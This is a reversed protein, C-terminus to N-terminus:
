KFTFENSTSESILGAWESRGESPLSDIVRVSLEFSKPVSTFKEIYGSSSWHYEGSSLKTTAVLVQMDPYCLGKNERLKIPQKQGDLGILCISASDGWYLLNEDSKWKLVIRTGQQISTPVTFTGGRGNAAFSVLSFSAPKELSNIPTPSNNKGTTESESNTQPASAKYTEPSPRDSNKSAPKKYIVFYIGFGIILTTIIALLITQSYGKRNM